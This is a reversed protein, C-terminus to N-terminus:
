LAGAFDAEPATVAAWSNEGKYLRPASLYGSWWERARQLWRHLKFHSAIAQSRTHEWKASDSGTHWHGRPQAEEFYALQVMAIVQMDM